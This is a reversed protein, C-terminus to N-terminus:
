ATKEEEFNSEEAEQPDATEPLDAKATKKEEITKKYAELSVVNVKADLKGDKDFKPANRYDPFSENSKSSRVWIQEWEPHQEHMLKSVYKPNDNYQGYFSSFLVTKKYVPMRLWRLCNVTKQIVNM